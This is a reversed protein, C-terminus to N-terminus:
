PEFNDGLPSLFYEWYPFTKNGTHSCKMGLIPIIKISM